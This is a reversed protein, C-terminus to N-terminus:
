EKSRQPSPSGSAVPPGSVKGHQVVRRNGGCAPTGSSSYNDLKEEGEITGGEMSGWGSWAGCASGSRSGAQGPLSSVIKGNPEQSIYWGDQQSKAGDKPTVLVMYSWGQPKQEVQVFVTHYRLPPIPHFGIVNLDSSFTGTRDYYDNELRHVEALAIEAETTKAREVYIPFVMVAATALIAIIALVVMLETLTFAM